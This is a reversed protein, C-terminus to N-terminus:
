KGATKINKYGLPSKYERELRHARASAEQQSVCMGPLRRWEIDHRRGHGRGGCKWHRLAKTGGICHSGNVRADMDGSTIGFYIEGLTHNTGKYVRHPIKRRRRALPRAKVKKPKKPFLDESLM